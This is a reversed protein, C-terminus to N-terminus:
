GSAHEFPQAAGAIMQRAVMADIITIVTEQDQPTFGELRQFRQALRTNTVPQEEAQRGMVLFDITVGFLEALTVMKEMPPVHLGAEYKYLYTNRIGLKAALEKQSWGREQRLTKVRNGFAARLEDDRLTSMPDTIM